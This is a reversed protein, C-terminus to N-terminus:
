EGGELHIKVRNARTIPTIHSEDIVHSLQHESVYNIVFGFRVNVNIYISPKNTQECKYEVFLAM